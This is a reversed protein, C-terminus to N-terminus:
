QQAVVCSLATGSPSTWSLKTIKTSTSSVTYVINGIFDQHPGIATGDSAYINGFKLMNSTADDNISAVTGDNTKVNITYPRVIITNDTNNNIEVALIIEPQPSQSSLIMAIGAGGAMTIQGNDNPSTSTTSATTSSNSKSPSGNIPDSQSSPMQRQLNTIQDDKKNILDVQSNFSKQLKAYKQGLEKNSKTLSTIQQKSSTLISISNKYSALKSKPIFSYNNFTYVGGSVLLGLILFSVVIIIWMKFPNKKKNHRNIHEDANVNSM